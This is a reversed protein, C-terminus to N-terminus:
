RKDVFESNILGTLSFYPCMFLVCCLLQMGRHKNKSGVILSYIVSLIKLNLISVVNLDRLLCLGQYSPKVAETKDVNEQQHTHLLWVSHNVIPDAQPLAATLDSRTLNKAKQLQIKNGLELSVFVMLSMGAWQVRAGILM